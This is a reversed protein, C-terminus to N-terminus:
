TVHQSRQLGSARSSDHPIERASHMSSPQLATAHHLLCELQAVARQGLEGAVVQDPHQLRHGQLACASLIISDLHSLNARCDGWTAPLPRPCAQCSLLVISTACCAIAPASCINCVCPLWLPQCCAHTLGSGAAATLCMCPSQPWMMVRAGAVAATCGALSTAARQVGTCMVQDPMFM